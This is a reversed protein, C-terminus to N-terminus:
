MLNNIYSHSALNGTPSLYRTNTALPFPSLVAFGYTSSIELLRSISGAIIRFSLDQSDSRIKGCIVSINFAASNKQQGAHSKTRSFTRIARFTCTVLFLPFAAFIRESNRSKPRKGFVTSRLEPDTTFELGLSNRRFFLLRSMARTITYQDLCREM